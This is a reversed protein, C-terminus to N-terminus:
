LFVRCDKIIPEGRLIAPWYYILIELLPKKRCWSEQTYYKVSLSQDRPSCHIKIQKGLLEINGSVFDLSVDYSLNSPFLSWQEGLSLDNLSKNYLLVFPDFRHFVLLWKISLSLAVTTLMQCTVTVRKGNSTTTKAINGAWPVERPVTKNNSTM